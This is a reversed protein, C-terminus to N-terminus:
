RHGHDHIRRSQTLLSSRSAFFIILPILILYFMFIFKVTLIQHIVELIKPEKIIDFVVITLFIGLMTLSAALLGSMVVVGMKGILIQWRSVPTTLLTELTGREKEGTFLDIAPYMCGM